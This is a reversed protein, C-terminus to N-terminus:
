RSRMLSTDFGTAQNKFCRESGTGDPGRAMAQPKIMMLTQWSSELLKRKKRKQKTVLSWLRVMDYSAGEWFMWHGRGACWILYGKQVPQLSNEVNCRIHWGLQLQHQPWMYSESCWLYKRYNGSGTGKGHHGRTRWHESRMEGKQIKVVATSFTLLPILYLYWISTDPRNPIEESFFFGREGRNVIASEVNVRIRVM